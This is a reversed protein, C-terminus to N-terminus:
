KILAMMKSVTRAPTELKYVYVGSALESGDFSVRHTAAPQVGDVLTAVTRGMLDYVRIRVHQTRDISYEITTAPNFPNPYNQHLAPREPLETSGEEAGTYVAGFPLRPLDPVKFDVDGATVYIATEYAPLTVTFGDLESDTFSSDAFLHTYSIPGDTTMEVHATPNISITRPEGAFNILVVANEDLYPRVYAYVGNATQLTTLDQTWFAPFTTRAHSLLQHTRAFAGNNDTQWSVPRRREDGGVNGFSVEQGQYIMPIGTTTLLFGTLPLIRDANGALVKAIRTEDHNELFRFYRANPGPWFDNNHAYTDYNRLIAYTGRIAEFYFNWDYGADIGGVVANGNDDDAYYVETSSGTGAIEGLLWADPKIRKMLRRIPTGFRDPGYRRWPGWYVDFRWGDIKFERVWYALVDLMRAQLDDDDWNVNALDGFGDYKRYLNRGGEAQWIEPLNPGRNDLGRNHASPETQLHDYFPSDEGLDRVSEVWPHVPSVHSPTVDLIVRLGLAHARAVLEKFDENTGLKPDVNYFDTVNYGGSLQDMFQNVFIPMFWITTFGMEAIYDLEDTIEDFRRGPSAPTGSAETPGFSLPFIEYVVARNIWAATEAYHMPRVRGNEEVIVAVRLFDKTGDRAELKVDFYLEGPGAATGGIGKGDLQYMLPGDLAVTSATSDFAWAASDFDNGSRGPAPSLGINFNRGEGTVTVTVVSDSLPHDRRTIRLTDSTFEADDVVARLTFANAGRDLDVLATVVGNDVSVTSEANNGILTAQTLAPDVTGDQRTVSGHIRADDVFTEYDPTRWTVPPQIEGIEISVDTGMSDTAALKFQSGAKIPQELVYRFVGSARDFYPLGDRAIGNVEFTIAAVGNSSFIGASVADIRGESDLERAPQFLMPDTITVVSNNNDAPNTRDNLPDSIWAWDSGSGDHHFHVKYQYTQDIQLTTAYLWQELSDVYTMQSADGVSIRGADNNGWNNFEGPLFARVFDDEPEPVYRFTVDLQTAPPPLGGLANASALLEGEFDFLALNEWPSGFGPAPIHTPEWYVVGRGRGDPARQLVAYLSDIFRRQGDVSAPFGTHLHGPLGVINNENDGWGLTWPYATEVVVIDKDYRAALANVNAELDSLEGHWWPYFSLGIVDFDVGHAALNDYFWRSGSVDGGSHIHIMVEVSDDETTAARLGEIGANLLEALQPWQHDYSGGVRGDPWLMGPRIENGVQVMQPTAGEEKLSSVVYDTYARVSDALVDFELNSWAAPKTQRGPDAWTDSYHIDLLFSMGLERIRKAMQITRPLNNYGTAPTHWLRLRIWNVGHNHLITLADNEAGNDTFTAYHSELRNLHSVDAGRIVDQAFGRGALAICALTFIASIRLRTSRSNM